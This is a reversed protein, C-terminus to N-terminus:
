LNRKVAKALERALERAADKASGGFVGSMIKATVDREFRVESTTPDIFRVHAVVVAAGAGMGFSQRQGRSGFSDSEYASM